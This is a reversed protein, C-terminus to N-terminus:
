PDLDVDGEGEGADKGPANAQLQLAAAASATAILGVLAITDAVSNVHLSYRQVARSVPLGTV